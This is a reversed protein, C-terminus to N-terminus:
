LDRGGVGPDTGEERSRVLVIAGAVSLGVISLVSLIIGLSDEPLRQIYRLLLAIQVVACLFFITAAVKLRKPSTSKM